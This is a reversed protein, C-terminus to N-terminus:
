GCGDTEAQWAGENTALGWTGPLRYFTFGVSSWIWPLPQVLQLSAACAASPLLPHQKTASDQAPELEGRVRCSPLGQEGFGTRGLHWGWGESMNIPCLILTEPRLRTISFSDTPVAELQLLSFNFTNAKGAAQGPALCSDASELHTIM